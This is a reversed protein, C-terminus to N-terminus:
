ALAAGSPPEGPKNRPRVPPGPAPASEASVHLPGPPAAPPGETAVRTEAAEAAKKEAAARMAEQFAKEDLFEPIAARQKPDTVAKNLVERLQERFVPDMRIHAIAGAGVVIKQHTQRRREEARQRLKLESVRARAQEAKKKEEAILEETTKRGNAM